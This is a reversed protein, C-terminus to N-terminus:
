IYNIKKLIISHGERRSSWQDFLKCFSLDVTNIAFPNNVFVCDAGIYDPHNLVTKNSFLIGSVFNLSSDLFGTVSVTHMNKKEIKTRYSWSSAKNKLDIEMFQTGFLAKIVYPMSSDDPYELDGTNIAIIFPMKSDFWKKSKWKEYQDQAKAKVADTIRLIIKDIPVDVLQIEDMSETTRMEPISDSKSPDGRTPAICEIYGVDDILFDPGENQLRRNITYNRNLLVNGLYMEWTRQHFQKKVASLFNSDAYLYYKKWLKEFIEKRSRNCGSAIYYPDLASNGIQFQKLEDNTEIIPLDASFLDNNMKSFNM